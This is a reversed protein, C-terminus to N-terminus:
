DVQRDLMGLSAMEQQAQQDFLQTALVLQAYENPDIWAQGAHVLDLVDYAMTAHQAHAGRDMLKLAEITYM